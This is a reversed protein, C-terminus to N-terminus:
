DAEKEEYDGAVLAAGMTKLSELLEAKQDSYVSDLYDGSDSEIGWLGTSRFTHLAYSGGGAPIAVHAIAIVGVFEWEDNEWATMRKQAEAQMEGFEAITVGDGVFGAENRDLSPWYGDQMEDPRDASDDRPTQREWTIRLKQPGAIDIMRFDIM